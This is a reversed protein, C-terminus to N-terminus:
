VICAGQKVIGASLPDFSEDFRLSLDDFIREAALVAAHSITASASCAHVSTWYRGSTAIPVPLGPPTYRASPSEIHRSRLRSTVCRPRRHAAKGATPGTALM